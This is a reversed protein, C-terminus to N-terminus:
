MAFLLACCNTDCCQHAARPCTTEARMFGCVRQLHPWRCHTSGLTASRLTRTNINNTSRCCQPSQPHLSPNQPVPSPSVASPQRDVCRWPMRRAVRRSSIRNAAGGGLMGVGSGNMGFQWMTDCCVVVCRAKDDRGPSTKGIDAQRGEEARTCEKTTIQQRAHTM